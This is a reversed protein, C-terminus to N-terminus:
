RGSRRRCCRAPSPTSRMAYLAATAPLNAVVLALAAAVMLVIGGAAEGAVFEQAAAAGRKRGTPEMPLGIVSGRADVFGGPPAGAVLSM